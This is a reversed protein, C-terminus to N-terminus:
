PNFYPSIPIGISEIKLLIGVLAPLALFLVLLIGQGKGQRLHKRRLLLLQKLLPQFPQGQCLRFLLIIGTRYLFFHDRQRVRFQM